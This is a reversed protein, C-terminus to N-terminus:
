DILFIQQVIAERRCINHCKKMITKSNSHIIFPIAEKLLKITYVFVSSTVIVEILAYIRKWM